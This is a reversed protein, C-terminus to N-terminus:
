DFCKEIDLEIVRKEIGNQKSSLNLFLIKQADHASRGTRFGYSRAHFTAEHAPELASKVLCQWARDGITPVKLIRTKGDKKPIPIERLGQHHWNNSHRKLEESLEFREEFTLKAKGDIGPTRKGVNLQTVQRIALLRASTSKLILKQLSKAKRYDGAQVAKFVRKQLRFLDRRFKKWPQNIWSESTNSSHGVM